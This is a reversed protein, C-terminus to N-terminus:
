KEGPLDRGDAAHKVGHMQRHHQAAKDAASRPPQRDAKDGGNQATPIRTM